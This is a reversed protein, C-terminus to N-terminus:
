GGSDQNNIPGALMEVSERLYTHSVVLKAHLKLYACIERWSYGKERLALILPLRVNIAELKPKKRTKKVSSAAQRLRHESIMRDAKLIEEHDRIDKYKLSRNATNVERCAMLLCALEVELDKKPHEELWVRGYRNYNARKVKIIQQMLDIPSRAFLRLIERAYEETLNALSLALPTEAKGLKM